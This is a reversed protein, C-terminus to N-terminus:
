LRKTKDDDASQEERLQDRQIESRDDVGVHRLHLGPQLVSRDHSMRSRNGRLLRRRNTEATINVATSPMRRPGHGTPSGTASAGVSIAGGTSGTRRRAGAATSIM